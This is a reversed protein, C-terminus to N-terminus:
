KNTFTLWVTSSWIMTEYEQSSCFIVKKTTGRWRQGLAVHQGNHLRIENNSYHHPPLAYV